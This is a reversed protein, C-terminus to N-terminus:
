EQGPPGAKTPFDLTSMSAVLVMMSKKSFCGM